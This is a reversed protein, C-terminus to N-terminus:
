TNKPLKFSWSKYEGQIIADVDIKSPIQTQDQYSIIRRVDFDRDAQYEKKFLDEMAKWGGENNFTNDMPLINIAEMPGDINHAVIHGGVAGNMGGKSKAIKSLDGRADDRDTARKTTHREYTRCVRGISDTKYSVNEIHYVSNPIYGDTNNIFENLHGDKRAHGAYCFVEDEKILAYNSEQRTRDDYGVLLVNGDSTLFAKISSSYANELRCKISHVYNAVDIRLKNLSVEKGSDRLEELEELSPLNDNFFEQLENRFNSENM